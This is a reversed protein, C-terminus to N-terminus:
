DECGEMDEEPISTTSSGLNDQTYVEEFSMMKIPSTTTRTRKPATDHGKPPTHPMVPGHAPAPQQLMQILTQLQTKILRVDQRLIEQDTKTALPSDDKVLAQYTQVAIQKGLDKMQREVTDLKRQFEQKLQDLDEKHRDELKKIASSIASQITEEDLTESTTSATAPTQKRTPLPPFATDTHTYSIDLPPRNKWPNTPTSKMPSADFSESAVSMAERFISAYSTVSGYKMARIVPGYSFQHERLVQNIWQHVDKYKSATTSVHYKNQQPDFSVRHISPNANLVEQLTEGKAGKISTADIPVQMIPINRHSEIFRAQEAAIFYYGKTDEKGLAFPILNNMKKTLIISDLLIKAFKGYKAPTSVVLGTTIIKEKGECAAIIKEKTFIMPLMIGTTGYFLNPLEAKWKKRDEKDMSKWTESIRRAFRQNLASIDPHDPHDYKLYGYNYTKVGNEFGGSHTRLFLNHPKLYTHMLRSKLDSLKTASRIKFGLMVKTSKGETKDVQFAKQFETSSMETQEVYPKDNASLVVLDNDDAAAKMRTVLDRFIAVVPVTESADKVGIELRLDYHYLTPPADKRIGDPSTTSLSM